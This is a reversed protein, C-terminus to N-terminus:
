GLVGGHRPLAATVSSIMGPKGKRRINKDDRKKAGFDNTLEIKRAM